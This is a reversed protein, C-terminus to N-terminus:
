KFLSLPMTICKLTIKFILKIVEESFDSTKTKKNKKKGSSLLIKDSKLHRQHYSM